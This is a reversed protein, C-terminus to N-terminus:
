GRRKTTGRHFADPDVDEDDLLDAAGGV